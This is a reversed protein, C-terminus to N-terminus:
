DFHIPLNEGFECDVIGGRKRREDVPRAGRQACRLRFPSAPLPFLLGRYVNFSSRRCRSLLREAATEYRGVHTIPVIVRFSYKLSASVISRSPVAASFAAASASASSAARM